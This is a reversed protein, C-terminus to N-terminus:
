PAQGGTAAELPDAADTSIYGGIHIAAHDGDRTTSAVPTTTNM